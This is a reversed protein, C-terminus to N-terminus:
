LAINQNCIESFLTTLAKLHAESSYEQIAIERARRRMQLLQNPNKLCYIMCESLNDADGTKFLLGAGSGLVSERLTGIDSVIVPTGCALSELLTNPLNEFWLSPIILFYSEKILESLSYIDMQGVFKVSEKLGLTEVQSTLKNM